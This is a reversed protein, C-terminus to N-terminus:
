RGRQVPRLPRREADLHELMPGAFAQGVIVINTARHREVTEFLEAADFHRNALSVVTGGGTMAILASFQGTGHMLPCAVVM